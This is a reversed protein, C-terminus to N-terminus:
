PLYAYSIIKTYKFSLVSSIKKFIESIIFIHCKTNSWKFTVILGFVLMSQLWNINYDTKKVPFWYVASNAMQLPGFCRSQKLQAVSYKSGDLKPDQM